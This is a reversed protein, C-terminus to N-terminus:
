SMKVSAPTCTWLKGIEVQLLLHTLTCISQRCQEVGKFWLYTSRRDTCSTGMGSKHKVTTYGLISCERHHGVLTTGTTGTHHHLVCQVVLFKGTAWESEALRHGCHKGKTTMVCGSVQHRFFCLRTRTYLKYNPRCHNHQHFVPDTASNPYLAPIIQSYVNTKAM